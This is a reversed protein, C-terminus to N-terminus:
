EDGGRKEKETGKHEREQGRERDIYLSPQGKHGPKLAFVAFEFTGVAVSVFFFSDAGFTEPGLTWAAALGDKIGVELGVEVNAGFALVVEFHTGPLTDFEEKVRAIFKDVAAQAGSVGQVEDIELGVLLAEFLGLLIGAEVVGDEVRDPL